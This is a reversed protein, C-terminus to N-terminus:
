ARLGRVILDAASDITRSLAAPESRLREDVAEVLPRLAVLAGAGHALMTFPVTIHVDRFIGAAQGEELLDALPWRRSRFFTKVIYDLRESRRAGEVNMLQVIAPYEALTELFGVCAAHFRQEIGAAPPLRTQVDVMRRHLRGMGHDVAAIWLGMKSGFRVNLLGHSVGSAAAIERISAGEFGREAFAELARDLCAEAAAAPLDTRAPRGPRRKASVVTM